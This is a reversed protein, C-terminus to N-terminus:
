ELKFLRRLAGYQSLGVGALILVMALLLSPPLAEGLLFAGLVVSWVPVQYNTLSMFVPGASRIVLIRLLNAAATPVLGLFALAVLTRRDPMQPLGDQWVAVPVTLLVAILLLVTSLGVPDVAPLRRMMVSSMGYCFAASVCAMRGAWELSAGSTDFAQGGILICVGVFGILFGATRRLTMQEGPILVHALPLVLLGVSAMSVGAFGATVYQQGWSILTFPLATSCAGIVWVALRQRAHLPGAFLPRGRAQWIVLMLLAAFGIRGAALWFPPMGELAVENVLFTGGWTLGLLTVMLWSKWTIDPATM